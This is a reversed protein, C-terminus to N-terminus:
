PETMRARIFAIGALTVGDSTLTFAIRQTQAPSGSTDAVGDAGKCTLVFGTVNEILVASEGTSDIQVLRGNALEIRRADTLRISSSSASAIAVTGPTAGEPIERVWRTIRDIAFANREIAARAQTSQAYAQSVGLIVPMTAAGVIGLVTVTVILEVLTVGARSAPRPLSRLRTAHNM